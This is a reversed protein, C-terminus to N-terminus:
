GHLLAAKAQDLADAGAVLVEVVCAMPSRHLESGSFHLMRWRQGSLDRDRRNRDTVQAKTREHYDHGDLEIGLRLPISASELAGALWDDMPELSFDMRYRAGDPGDIWVQPRLKLAFRPFDQLMRDRATTFWAAFIAEIPSEASAGSRIAAEVRAMSGGTARYAAAATKLLFRHDNSATHTM